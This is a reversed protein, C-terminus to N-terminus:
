PSKKSGVIRLAPREVARNAATRALEDAVAIYARTTDFDAHRALKQAALPGSTMAIHTIFAARLDHWRWRQGFEQEIKEMATRWASRAKKIPRWPKAKAPDKTEQRYTILHMANRDDAEIALCRLYGMAFQSGPLFEDRKEKVGDHFVRVGEAAWDVHPKLLGFAESGRFGFCLTLVMADIAHQPLIEYLRQMVADPTPRAQRKPEPLDAFVPVQKLVLEQTLPDRMRGAHELIQRLTALRRNVTAPTRPKGTDRWFKEAEPTDRPAKQAGTWVKVTQSVCFDVYRHIRDDTIATIPTAAGFYDVIERSNRQKNAWEKERQWRSLLDAIVMRLTIAAGQPLKPAITALRKAVGEAQKAASKNTVPEGQADLCYNQHRVGNIQFDYTWRKRAKNFYVTM